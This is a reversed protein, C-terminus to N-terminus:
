LRSRLFENAKRITREAALKGRAERYKKRMHAQMEDRTVVLPPGLDARNMIRCAMCPGKEANLRDGKFTGCSPCKISEPLKKNKEHSVNTSIM